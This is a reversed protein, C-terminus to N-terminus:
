SRPRRLDQREYVEPRSEDLYLEYPDGEGPGVSLWWTRRREALDMDAWAFGGDEFTKAAWTGDRNLIGSPLHGQRTAVLVPLGTDIARVPFVQDMHDPAGGALPFLLLEAGKRRLFKASESFWNDWCTLCGVRGFDLDLVGFDDGYTLAVGHRIHGVTQASMGVPAKEQEADVIQLRRHLRSERDVQRFQGAEHDVVDIAIVFHPELAFLRLDLERREADM